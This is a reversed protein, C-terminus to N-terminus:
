RASVSPVHKKIVKRENKKADKAGKRQSKCRRQTSIKVYSVFICSLSNETASWTTSTAPALRPM